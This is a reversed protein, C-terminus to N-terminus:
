KYLVTAAAPPVLVQLSQLFVYKDLPTSKRRMEQVSLEVQEDQSSPLHCVRSYAHIFGRSTSVECVHRLICYVM